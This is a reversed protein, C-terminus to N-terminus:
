SSRMSSSSSITRADDGSILQLLVSRKARKHKNHSIVNTMYRGSTKRYRCRPHNVTARKRSASIRDCSNRATNVADIESGAVEVPVVDHEPESSSTSVVPENFNDGLSCLENVIRRLADLTNGGMFLDLAQSETLGLIDRAVSAIHNRELPTGYFKFTKFKSTYDQVNHSWPLLQHGNLLCARGAFCASTGCYWNAQDWEEPHAEIYALTERLLKVNPM